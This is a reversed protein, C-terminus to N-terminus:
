CEPKQSRTSFSFCKTLRVGIMDNDDGAVHERGYGISLDYGSDFGYGVSAAVLRDNTEFDRFSGTLEGHWPGRKLSGGVTVYTADGAAGTYHEFYALEGVLGLTVGNGIETDKALGIVFGNEDGADSETGTQHRYGINYKFGELGPIEEGALTVSFNDFKGTNGAGGDYDHLRGRNNFLSESFVTTDAFFTNVALTHKGFGTDFTYAAGLAMRESLEYDEAYRSGWPGPAVDWAFGFNPEYKGATFTWNGLNAELNLTDMYLGIGCMTCDKPPYPGKVQELTLGLNVSFVQTLGLKFAATSGHMYLNNFENAPNSSHFTWDNDFELNIVGDIYPYVDPAATGAPKVNDAALAAAPLAAALGAALILANRNMTM